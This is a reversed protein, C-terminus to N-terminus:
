GQQAVVDPTGNPANGAPGAPLAVEVTTGRLTEVFTVTGGHARVLQSVVALGIGSGSASRAGESRYFREFVHPRDVADIGPGDDSVRLTVTGLAPSAHTELDLTGGPPTYKIANTLLNTVIQALRVPDGDLVAPRLTRRLHHQHEDISPALDDAVRGAIQALDCRGRHLTREAFVADADALVGLDDVLRRLRLVDDHMQVFRPLTPEAIGDIVEECSGQLITLPTRLEHAVDATLNRRAAEHAQLRDAMDDFALALAGIEGPADHHGVRAGPDGRGVRNAADTLQRLPHVIRRSLVVAVAVALVAAALTGLLVTGSLADRVHREAEDLEAGTFTVEVAGVVRGDVVVDAVRTPGEGRSPPIMGEAMSNALTLEDGAQDSIAISAEGQIALMLAPHVDVGEWGNGQRDAQQRYALALTGAISEATAQQREAALTGVSHRTRWLMLSALALVAAVAVVVFAAALRM